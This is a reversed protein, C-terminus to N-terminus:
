FKIIVASVIAVMLLTPVENMMRYHRGKKAEGATLRRTERVCWVHFVTMGLVGAAKVWPWTFDWGVIGPVSVLTLGSLWTAIMAPRMILRMLKDEMILFSAVPEAQGANRESHYVFLRPLYFLAAMWAIVSMVHFAKVYPYILVLLDLM